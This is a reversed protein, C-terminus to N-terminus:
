KLLKRYGCYECDKKNCGKNLFEGSEIEQVMRNIEEKVENIESDSIDLAYQEFEGKKNKEIFDLVAKNISFKNDAYNEYLIHYFVLQRKLDEKESKETKESFPKGTKYDIINIKGEITSDLFEVKDLRGSINMVKGNNLKFERMIYKENQIGVTWNKHYHDYYEGLAEEGRKLYRKYEEGYFSSQDMLNKFHKILSNKRSINKNNKSEEFFKELSDHVLDGYLLNASYESPLRILNRFLYKIPCELYNNLATVNLNQEFFLKKLYEKDFFSKNSDTKAVFLALNDINEKEFKITGENEILSQDIETVFQSKDQEKGEWDTLSSTICLGNKARTMSVYFLRREDDIDGKYDDLPLAMKGFGRSKEWNRRTAGIIYVYEFELGKSKHATMFQVGLAVEPDNTEIDLNYKKCADIFKIFDGLSYGKKNQVQRKIEDFLKDIKILQHRSNPNKLMYDIYGIENLFEKFFGDFKANASKTKLAKIKGAFDKFEKDKSIFDFLAVNEKRNERNFKDLTDIAKYSDINLFDVM